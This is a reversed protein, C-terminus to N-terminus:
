AAKLLFTKLAEEVSQGDVVKRGFARLVEEYQEQRHIAIVESINKAGEEM